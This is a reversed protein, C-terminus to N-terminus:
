IGACGKSKPTSVSGNKFIPCIYSLTLLKNINTIGNLKGYNIGDALKAYMLLLFICPSLGYMQKMTRGDKEDRM